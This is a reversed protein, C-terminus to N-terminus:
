MNWKRLNLTGTSFFYTYRLNPAMHSILIVKRFDCKEDCMETYMITRYPIIYKKYPVTCYPDHVPVTSTGYQVTGTRYQVTGCNSRRVVLRLRARAPISVASSQVEVTLGQFGLPVVSLTFDLFSESM